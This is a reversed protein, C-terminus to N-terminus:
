SLSDHWSGEKYYKLQKNVYFEYEVETSPHVVVDEAFSGDRIIKDVDRYPEAEIVALARAGGPTFLIFYYCM